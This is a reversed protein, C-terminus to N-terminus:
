RFAPRSPYRRPLYQNNLACYGGNGSVAARCQEYTSFGCNRSGGMGGGYKACWPYDQAYAASNFVGVGVFVGIMHMFANMASRM